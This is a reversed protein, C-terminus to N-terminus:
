PMIRGAYREEPDRYSVAESIHALRIDESGELDAITRAVKLIRTYARASLDMKTFIDKLAADEKEGLACFKKVERNGMESNFFIPSERFRYQQIARAAEIRERIAASSENNRSERIDQYTVPAAQVCIDIRDLLPRSIKGLYRHIQQRTCSCRNRDPYCGCPCPNAAAVLMFDAPFTCSLNVRSITVKREELPQRLVELTERKFEPLEDLFLVGRSALSVEGPKPSNGGGILAQTTITHHPARFPRTQMLASGPPLMGCVSYIKSIEMQEEKSLAPMISPIRSAMMSKGSGPPGIYLLNHRGAVAVETARRMANQGNIESFDSITGRPGSDPPSLSTVIAARLADESKLLETVQTLSEARITQIGEVALSEALNDPPIFVREIGKEKFNLVLPLVGRIGKVSGDLGLEGLFACGRCAGPDIVDYAGLIALAIPLDFGTGDKRIDAPSLNVTMKMPPLHFGSNKIATRVRDGAERVESALYGVMSLQPLGNGVDAEVETVYGEVGHLGGSLIKCFM